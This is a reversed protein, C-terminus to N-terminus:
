YMVHLWHSNRPIFCGGNSEITAGMDRASCESFRNNNERTGDTASAFMIFNGASGGPACSTGPEDHQSPSSTCYAHCVCGLAFAPVNNLEFIPLHYWAPHGPNCITIITCYHYSVAQLLRCYLKFFFHWWWCPLRKSTFCSHYSITVHAGVPSGYNHGIEHAVTIFSVPQPLQPFLHSFYYLFRSLSFSIAFSPRISPFSFFSNTFKFMLLVNSPFYM